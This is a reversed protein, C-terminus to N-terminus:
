LLPTRALPPPLAEREIAVFGHARAERRLEEIRVTAGQRSGDIGELRALWLRARLGAPLNRSREAVELLARLAARAGELDGGAARARALGFQLYIWGGHNGKPERIIASAKEVEALARASSGVGSTALLCRSSTVLLDSSLFSPADPIGSLLQQVERVIRAAEEPRGRELMLEALENAADRERFANRTERCLQLAERDLREAEAVEGRMLAIRGLSPYAFERCDLRGAAGCAGLGERLRREEEDIEGEVHAVISLNFHLYSLSTVRGIATEVELATLWAKRAGETDGVSNLLNGERILLDSRFAPEAGWGVLLRRAEAVAERAEPARGLDVLASIKQFLARAELSPASLDRARALARESAVLCKAPAGTKERLYAEALDTRPDEAATGGSARIAALEAEAEPVRRAMQLARVLALRADLAEPVAALFGRWAPIARAWDRTVTRYHAEIELRDARPLDGSLQLATFAEEEAQRQRGLSQAAGSLVRHAAALRPASAVAEELLPVAEKWHHSRFELLGEAYLRLAEPVAPVSDRVASSEQDTRDGLGLRVRLTADVEAVLDLLKEESGTHSVTAVTTGSATEQVHADVRLAREASPLVVYSGVVVLDAGSLSRIRRLTETSLTDPRPIGLDRLLRGVDERSVASLRGGATLDAAVMEALASGIWASDPRGAPDHFGLVAIRARPRDRGELWPRMPRSAGFQFAAVGVLALAAVTSLLPVARSLPKRPMAAPPPEAPPTATGDMGTAGTGNGGPDAVVAPLFRYGRGRVTEIIPAPEHPAFAKRIASITWHLNGEEVVADPWVAEILEERPVLRGPNRVLHLLTLFTKQTLVVPEGSVELTAERDDLVFPGFRYRM